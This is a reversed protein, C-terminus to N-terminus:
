FALEFLCISFMLLRSDKPYVGDHSLFKNLRQLETLHSLSDSPSMVARDEGPHTGQAKLWLFITIWGSNLAAEGGLFQLLCWLCLQCSALAWPSTEAWGLCPLPWPFLQPPEAWSVFRCPVSTPLTHTLCQTMTGAQNHKVGFGCLGSISSWRFHLM